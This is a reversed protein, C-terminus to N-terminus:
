SECVEETCGVNPVEHTKSHYLSTPNPMLGTPGDRGTVSPVATENEPGGPRKSEFNTVRSCETEHSDSNMYKAGVTLGLVPTVCIDVDHSNSMCKINTLTNHHHAGCGAVSVTDDHHGVAVVLLHGPHTLLMVVTCEHGTDVVVKVHCASEDMGRLGAYVPSMRCDKHEVPSEPSYPYEELMSPPREGLLGVAPPGVVGEVSNMETTECVAVDNTKGGEDPFATLVAHSGETGAEKPAFCGYLCGLRALCWLIVGM